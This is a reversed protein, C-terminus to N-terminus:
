RTKRAGSKDSPPRRLSKGLVQALKWSLTADPERVETVATAAPAVEREYIRALAVFLAVILPGLYLGSAGFTAIGGFLALFILLPHFHLGERSLLPRLVNDVTGVVFAGFGLLVLGRTVDGSAILWISMPVWVGASGVVPIVAVVVTLAGFLLPEPVDLLWYALGALAGQILATGLTGLIVARGVLEFEAVIARTHRPELPLAREIRALAWRGDRLLYYTAVMTLFFALALDLFSTLVQPIAGGVWTVAGQLQGGLDSPMLKRLFPNDALYRQLGNSSDIWALLEPLRGVVSVLREVVLAVLFTIPALVALIILATIAAAAVRSSTFHQEIRQRLPSAFAALLGGLLIPPLIPLVTLLFLVIGILFVALFAQGGYKRGVHSAGAPVAAPAAIPVVSQEVSTDASPPSPQTDPPLTPELSPPV